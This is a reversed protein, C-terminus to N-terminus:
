EKIFKAVGGKDNSIFYVGNTLSSVDVTNNGTQLQQTVVTAGLMNVIKINTKETGNLLASIDIHLVSNAPNPFVATSNNLAIDHVGITSVFEAVFTRNASINFTYPNATSVDAGSETWKIFQYGANPTARLIVTTGDDYTGDGIVTGGASPNASINVTYQVLTAVYKMVIAKNSNAADSYAVYPEGSPSFALSPASLPGASFGVTGVNVWSTGDFKMVTAKYSNANDQYAVYPEGNPSFALSPGGISGASFGATGVNVWNTGDFKMVTAKYSNVSDQYAVYPEGSPSFKLSPMDMSGASFGATGVNQWQAFTKTTLGIVLFLGFVLKQLQNKM